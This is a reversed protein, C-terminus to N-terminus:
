DSIKFIGMVIETSQLASQLLVFVRLLGPFLAACACRQLAIWNSLMCFVLTSKSTM